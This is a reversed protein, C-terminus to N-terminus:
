VVPWDSDQPHGVNPLTEALVGFRSQHPTKNEVQKTVAKKVPAVEKIPAVEQVASSVGNEKAVEGKKKGKKKSPVEEWAADQELQQIQQEETMNLDKWSDPTPATGNTHGAESSSATSAAEPDFTDLLQGNQQPATKVKDTTGQTKWVSSAPAKAPQLGNKAPEGRAERATRRQQELKHQRDKEDEERAAKAAEAKKRNQRAKKSESPAEPKQQQQKNPRALKEVPNIKLVSPVNGVSELMDSVDKGSPVKAGLVNSIASTTGDYAEAGATTAETLYQEAKEGVDQVAKKVSKRPAKAKVAKKAKSVVESNGWDISQGRGTTTTANIISRRRQRTNGNPSLFYYYTAGGVVILFLGWSAYNIEM